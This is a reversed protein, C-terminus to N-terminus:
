WALLLRGLWFAWAPYGVYPVALASMLLSNPMRGTSRALLGTIVLWSGVGLIMALSVWVVQKEFPLVKFILLLQLGVVLVMSAIGTITAVRMLGPQYVGLVRHLALAIPITLLYQLAVCIDNLLGIKLGLERYPTAFLAFMAILLVVGIASIVGSLVALGGAIHISSIPATTQSVQEM